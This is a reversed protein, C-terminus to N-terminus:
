PDCVKCPAYGLKLLDDRKGTFSERNASKMHKISSCDPRHFKKTKKNLIYSQKGTEPTAAPAAKAQQIYANVYKVYNNLTKYSKEADAQPANYAFRIKGNETYTCIDWARMGILEGYLARLGKGSRATVTYTNAADSWQLTDGAADESFWCGSLLSRNKAAIAKFGQREVFSNVMEVGEALACGMLLALALLAAVYRRM